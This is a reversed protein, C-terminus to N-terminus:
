PLRFVAEPSAMPTGSRKGRKICIKASRLPHNHMRALILVTCPPSVKFLGCAYSGVLMGAEETGEEPGARLPRHLPCLPPFGLSRLPRTAFPHANSAWPPSPPLERDCPVLPGRWQSGRRPQHALPPWAHPGAVHREEARREGSRAGEVARWRGRGLGPGRGGPRHKLWCIIWTIVVSFLALISAVSLCIPGVPSPSPSGASGCRFPAGGGLPGGGGGGGGYHNVFILGTFLLVVMSLFSSLACAAPPSRPASATRAARTTARRARPQRPRTTRRRTRRLVAAAAAPGHGRRGVPGFHASPPARAAPPPGPAAPRARRPPGASPRPSCINNPLGHWAATPCRRATAACPPRHRRAPTGPRRARYRRPPPPPPPAAAPEPVGPLLHLCALLLRAGTQTSTTTASKQVRLGRLASPPRPGDGSREPGGGGRRGPSARPAGTGPSSRSQEPQAEIAAAAAAATARPEAM